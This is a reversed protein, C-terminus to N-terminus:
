ADTLRRCLGSVRSAHRALTAAIVEARGALHLVRRARSLGTYLLERSLVRADNRPLQLWVQDFESGQAKHVTLAFASELAPM